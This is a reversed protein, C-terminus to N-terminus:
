QSYAKILHSIFTDNARLRREQLESTASAPTYYGIGIEQICHEM